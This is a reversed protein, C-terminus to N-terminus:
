LGTPIDILLTDLGTEGAAFESMQHVGYIETAYHGAFLVNIGAEQAQHYIEHSADGTIFLDLEEAIAQSVARPDGGSVVGVTEIQEKGFPLMSLPQSTLLSAIEELRRPRELRGKFGIAVGRYRGFPEPEGLALRRVIGINNGLEPHADLPLHVAYLALDAELLYHLRAYLVGRLPEVKGWFLGHHVFLVQARADAARRFSEMCADVAFAIRSIADGRREVQIGNLSVDISDFAALDLTARVFRDFDALRMLAM